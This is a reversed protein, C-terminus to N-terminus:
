CNKTFAIVTPINPYGELQGLKENNDKLQTNSPTPSTVRYKGHDSHQRQYAVDSLGLTPHNHRINLPVNNPFSGVQQVITVGNPDRKRVQSRKGEHKPPRPPLHQHATTADNQYTYNLLLNNTASPLPLVHLNQNTQKSVSYNIVSKTTDYPPPPSNSEGHRIPAM